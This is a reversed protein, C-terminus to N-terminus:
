GKRVRGVIVTINDAGGRARALEVLAECAAAPDHTAVIEHIEESEVENSLGDSCLVLATGDELTIPTPSVDAQVDPAGGICRTLVHSSVAPATTGSAGAVRAMEEALTHDLTLQEISKATVRYARSDGVHGLTLENGVIAAATCTTGMGALQADAAARAHVARNAEGIAHALAERPQGRKKAGGYADRLTDVALRSAVEGAAAGGMGDALVLLVGRADDVHFVGFSDENNKRGCGLDTQAAVELQWAGKGRLQITEAIRSPAAEAAPFEIVPLGETRNRGTAGGVGAKPPVGHAGPGKLYAEIARSHEEGARYRELHAEDFEGFLRGDAYLHILAEVVESFFQKGGHALLEEFAEEPSLGRRYPRDSTMADFAAVVMIIRSATPVADGHLGRPYGGGDPQEHHSLVIDIAGKFFREGAILESGIRPHAQLHLMEKETLKGRKVLVDRQLATRGLDHVLAAFELEELARGRLGLERGLSLSMRSVRYSHDRTFPDAADVAAMLARTHQLHGERAETWADLARRVLFLPLLCLVVFLARGAITEFGGRSEGLVVLVSLLAAFLIGGDVFTRLATSKRKM